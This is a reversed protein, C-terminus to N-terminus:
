SEEYGFRRNVVKIFDEILVHRLQEVELPDFFELHIYDLHESICWSDDVKKVKEADNTRLDIV